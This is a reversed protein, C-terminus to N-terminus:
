VSALLDDVIDEFRQRAAPSQPQSELAHVAAGLRAAGVFGCSARLRHLNACVEEREGRGAASRIADRCRPLEDIFLARLADVHAQQGNLASLAAADDWLPLKGCSGAAAIGTESSWGLVRRVSALLSGAALPKVLVEAFGAAILADLEGRDHSATHALAPIAPDAARLRQLLETGSGDPLNADILWLAHGHGAALTLAAALCDAADVVAPLAECAAALFARSVPDDEVLLLRPLTTPKM